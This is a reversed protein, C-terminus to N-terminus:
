KVAGQKIAWLIITGVVALVAIALGLAAKVILGHASAGKQAMPKVLECATSHEIKLAKHDDEVRTIRAHVAKFSERVDDTNKKTNEEHNEVREMLIAMNQQTASIERLIIKMDNMGDTIADLKGSMMAMQVTHGQVVDEIDAM